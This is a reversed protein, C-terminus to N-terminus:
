NKSSGERRRGSPGGGRRPLLGFSLDSSPPLPPPSPPADRFVAAACSLFTVPSLFLPRRGEDDEDEEKAEAEEGGRKMSVPALPPAPAPQWTVDVGHGM